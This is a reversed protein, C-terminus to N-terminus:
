NDRATDTKSLQARRRSLANCHEAVMGIWTKRVPAPTFNATRTAELLTNAILNFM